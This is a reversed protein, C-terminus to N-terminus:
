ASKKLIAIVEEDHTALLELEFEFNLRKKMILILEIIETQTWAHYHISYDSRMLSLVQQEVEAVDTIMGVYKTWEEFHQRKSWDPGKNYDRLLHEIATVPRGKDFSFRKDPISLYLIGGKKLVRLINEITGIPNQCHELFHNAIVFDQTADGIKLLKEGDDIIDVPMLKKSNLEPYQKRLESIPLRDLYTVQASKSVRVPAHLAGIEIGKGKIYIRAISERDFHTVFLKLLKRVKSALTGLFNRANFM